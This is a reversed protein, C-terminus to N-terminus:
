PGLLTFFENGGVSLSVESLATFAGGADSPYTKVIDAFEIHATGADM